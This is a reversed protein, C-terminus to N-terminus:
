RVPLTHIPGFALSVKAFWEERLEDLKGTQDLWREFGSMYAASPQATRSAMHSIVFVDDKKTMVMHVLPRESNVNSGSALDATVVVTELQPFKAAIYPEHLLHADLADGLCFSLRQLGSALRPQSTLWDILRPTPNSSFLSLTQLNPFHGLFDCFRSERTGSPEDRAHRERNFLTLHQLHQKCEGLAESLSVLSMMNTPCSFARLSSRSGHLIAQLDASSMSVDSTLTLRELPQSFLQPIQRFGPADTAPSTWHMPPNGTPHDLRFSKLSPLAPILPALDLDDTYIPELGICHDVFTLRLTDVTALAPLHCLRLNTFRAGAALYVHLSRLSTCRRTLQWSFGTGAVDASRGCRLVFFVKSSLGIVEFTLEWGDLEQPDFVPWEQIAPMLRRTSVFPMESTLFVWRLSKIEEAYDPRARLTRLLLRPDFRDPQPGPYLLSVAVPSWSKCVLACSPLMQPELHDMIIELLEVPLDPWKSEPM